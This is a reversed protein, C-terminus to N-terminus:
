NLIKSLNFYDFESPHEPINAIFTNPTLGPNNSWIRATIKENLIPASIPFLLKQQFLPTKNANVIKTTLVCGNVRASVFPNVSGLGSDPLGEAKMVVITLQYSKVYVEPQSILMLGQARKINEIEDETL